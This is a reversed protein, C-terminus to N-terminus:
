LVEASREEGLGILVLVAAVGKFLCDHLSLYIERGITVLQLLDMLLM